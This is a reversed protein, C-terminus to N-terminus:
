CFSPFDIRAARWKEVAFIGPSSKNYTGTELPLSLSINKTGSGTPMNGQVLYLLQGDSNSLTPQAGKIIACFNEGNVQASFIEAGSDCGVQLSQDGDDLSCSVQLLFCCVSLFFQITNRM